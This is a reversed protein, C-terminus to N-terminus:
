KELNLDVTKELLEKVFLPRVKFKQNTGLLVCTLNVKNFRIFAYEKDDIGIFCRGRESNRLKREMIFENIAEEELRDITDQDKEETVEVVGKISYEKGTEKDCVVARTRKPEIFVYEKNNFRIVQGLKLDNMIDTINEKM